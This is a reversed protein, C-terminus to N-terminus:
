SHLRLEQARQVSNSNDMLKTENSANYFMYGEGPRMAALTGGWKGDNFEAFGEDKSVIRDGNQFAGDDMRFYENPSLALQSKYPIWNWKPHNRKAVVM